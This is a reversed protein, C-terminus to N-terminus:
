KELEEATLAKEIFVRLEELKTTWENLATQSQALMAEAEAKRGTWRQVAKQARKVQDEARAIESIKEEAKSM